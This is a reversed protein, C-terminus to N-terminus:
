KFLEPKLTLSLDFTVGGVDALKVNSILYGEVLNQAKLIDIQQLIPGFYSTSGKMTVQRSESDLAFNSYTIQPHAWSQFNLFFNSTKPRENFLIKFDNVTTEVQIANNEMLILENTKQSNIEQNLEQIRTESNTIAVYKLYAYGGASCILLFLSMAFVIKRGISQGEQKENLEIAM